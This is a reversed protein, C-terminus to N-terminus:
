VLCSLRMRLNKKIADDGVALRVSADVYIEISGVKRWDGNPLLRLAVLREVAKSGRGAFLTMVRHRFAEAELSAKGTRVTTNEMVYERLCKRFLAIHTGFALSLSLRIM